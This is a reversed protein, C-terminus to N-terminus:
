TADKLEEIETLLIKLYQRHYAVSPCLYGTSNNARGRASEKVIKFYLNRAQRKLIWLKASRYLSRM